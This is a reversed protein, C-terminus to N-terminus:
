EKIALIEEESLDTIDMIASIPYKGSALMKKAMEAKGEAKGQARGKELGEKLKDNLSM